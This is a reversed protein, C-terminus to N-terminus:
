VVPVMKHSFTDADACIISMYSDSLVLKVTMYPNLRSSKYSLRCGVEPFQISKSKNIWYIFLM